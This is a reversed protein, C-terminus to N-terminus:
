QPAVLGAAQCRWGVAVLDQKDGGDWASGGNRQGNFGGASAPAPEGEGRQLHFGARWKPQGLRLPSDGRLPGLAYQYKRFVPRQLLKFQEVPTRSHFGARRAAARRALKHAHAVKSRAIRQSPPAASAARCRDTASAAGSLCDSM